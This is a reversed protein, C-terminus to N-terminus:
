KDDNKEVKKPKKLSGKIVVYGNNCGVIPGKIAILNKESDIKIVKVNQITKQQNGMHGPMTKGKFVRSPYSSAGISGVRRHHMSGHTAKGGKWGWRKMGGQFGKGKSTGTVDVYDGEAFINVDIKDGVKHETAESSRIEKIFKKPPTNKGKKKKDDIGLQIAEYGNEEETRVLLVESPVAEILTVPVRNGESDYVQTMGIKKGLIGIM